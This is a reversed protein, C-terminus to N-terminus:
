KAAGTTRKRQEREIVQRRRKISRQATEADELNTDNPTPNFFLPGFMMGGKDVFRWEGMIRGYHASDLKGNADVKTRVRFILYQGHSLESIMHNGTSSREFEYRLCSVYEGNALAAYASDMESYLDKEMLYAGAYPSNTFSVDLTKLYGNPQQEYTYRVMMDTCKGNGLPPVWDGVELDFGAWEGSEPYKHCCREDPDRLRVPNKIRKLIVTRTEGYPQWRGDVIASGTGDADLCPELRSMYFGDKTFFATFSVSCKGVINVIGNADSELAYSRGGGKADFQRIWGSCKVGQVPNGEDDLIRYSINMEPSICKKANAWVGTRTFVLLFVIVFQISKM